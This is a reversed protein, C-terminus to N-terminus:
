QGDHMDAMMGMSGESKHGAKPVKLGNQNTQLQLSEM